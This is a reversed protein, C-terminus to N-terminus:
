KRRKHRYICGMGLIAMGTLVFSSPEPVFYKNNLYGVVSDVNTPSLVTNYLLMEAIQGNFGGSNSAPNGGLRSLVHTTLAALDTSSNTASTPPGTLGLLKSTIQNNVTDVTGAVIYWNTRNDGAISLPNTVNGGTATSTDRSHAIVTDNEIYAGYDATATPEAHNGRWISKTEAATQKFVFFWTMTQNNYASDAGATFTSSADTIRNTAASKSELFISGGAGFDVVNHTTGNPMLVPSLTPRTTANRGYDQYQSESNGIQDYWVKVKGDNDLLVSSGDLGVFLGSSVPSMVTASARHTTMFLTAVMVLGGSVIRLKSMNNEKRVLIMSGILYTKDSGM